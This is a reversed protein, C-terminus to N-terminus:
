ALMCSWSCARGAREGLALERLGWPAAGADDLRLGTGDGRPPECGLGGHDGPLDVRRSARGAGAGSGWSSHWRARAM